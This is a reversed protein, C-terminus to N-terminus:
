FLVYKVYAGQEDTCKGLQLSDKVYSRAIYQKHNKNYIGALIAHKPVDKYTECKFWKPNTRLNLVEFEKM